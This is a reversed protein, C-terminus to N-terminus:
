GEGGCVCMFVCRLTVLRRGEVGGGGAALLGVVLRRVWAPAQGAWVEEDM